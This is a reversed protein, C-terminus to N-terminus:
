VKYGLDEFSGKPSPTTMTSSVPSISTESTDTDELDLPMPTSQTVRQVVEVMTQLHAETQLKKKDCEDVVVHQFANFSLLPSLPAKVPPIRLQEVENLNSFDVEKEEPISFLPRPLPSFIGPASFSRRPPVGTSLAAQTIEAM